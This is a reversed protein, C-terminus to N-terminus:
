AKQFLPCHNHAKGMVHFFIKKRTKGVNQIVFMILLHLLTLVYHECVVSWVFYPVVNFTTLQLWISFVILLVKKVVDVPKCYCYNLVLLFNYITAVTISDIIGIVPSSFYVWPLHDLLLFCLLYWIIHICVCYHLHKCCQAKIDFVHWQLSSFYTVNMMFYNYQLCFHAGIFIRCSQVIWHFLFFGFFFGTICTSQRNICIKIFESQPRNNKDNVQYPCSLPFFIM